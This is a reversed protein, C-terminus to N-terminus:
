HAIRYAPVAQCFVVLSVMLGGVFMSMRLGMKGVVAAGVVAGMMTVLYLVALVTFGFDGFGGEEQITSTLNQVCDFPTYLVTFLVSLLFAKNFHPHKQKDLM